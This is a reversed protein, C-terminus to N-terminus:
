ESTTPEDIPPVTNIYQTNININFDFGEIIADGVPRSQAIVKTNSYKSYEIEPIINKSSDYVTLNLKYETTFAIVDNLTWGEDVMDPYENVINPIYLTITDGKEILTKDNKEDFTPTQEIIIDEKGKYQEKDEIDKKEILVNLGILELKAKVETYKKGVYNELYYYTGGISEVIIITDGEKRTSGARPKTKIVYGAEITDSNAQEKIYKFGAQELQYIAEEVSEGVVNPVAVDKVEQTSVIWIIGGAILLLLFFSALITILTNKKKPEEFDKEDNEYDEEDEVIETVLEDTNDNVIKEKKPKRIKEVPTTEDLDNEPYEFVIKKDNTHEEELCHILDEHMDKASDYRNRPNKAAAKLLINEVSQPIAPNQKRISPIKDKMHKLAIEVANDGKFPVNGTLLEYM